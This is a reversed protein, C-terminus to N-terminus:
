LAEALAGDFGGLRQVRRHGGLAYRSGHALRRRLESARDHVPVQPAAPAESYTQGTALGCAEAAKLVLETRSVCLARALAAVTEGDPLGPLEDATPDLLGRVSAQSLGSRRALDDIGWGNGRLHRYLYGAFANM